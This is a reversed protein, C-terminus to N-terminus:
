SLTCARLNNSERLAIGFRLRGAGDNSKLLSYIKPNRKNIDRVGKMGVAVIKPLTGRGIM